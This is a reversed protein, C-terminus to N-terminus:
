ILTTAEFVLIENEGKETMAPILDPSLIAMRNERDLHLFSPYADLLLKALELTFGNQICVILQWDDSGYKVRHYFNEEIFGLDNLVEVYKMLYFDIYNQEEKIKAVALTALESATKHVPTIWLKRWGEDFTEDGWRHGVFVQSNNHQRFYAIQRSVTERLSMGQARWSLFMSYFSRAKANEVLRVLNSATDEDLPMDVLFIDVIAEILESSNDIQANEAARASLRQDIVSENDFLDYETAGHELLSTGVETQLRRMNKLEEAAPIGPELNGLRELLETRRAIDKSGELLANNPEDSADVQVDTVREVFNKLNFDGRPYGGKFVYIRPQLLNLRPDSPAFVESFRAIRGALNRFQSASLHRRGKRPDLIFLTDAPTNVGELLTSTSVMFRPETGPRGFIHEVYLRVAEPMGGHHFVVGKELTNVLEYDPHVLDEIAKRVNNIIENSVAPLASALDSALSEADRPRNLYVLNKQRALQVVASTDSDSIDTRVEFGTKLFQDHLYLRGSSLESYYYREVKVYEQIKTSTLQRQTGIPQLDEPQAMFPTFLLVRTNPNRHLATLLVETAREARNDNDLLNHAEDILIQHFALDPQERFLRFLREQTMVAIFNQNPRYLEPHTIIRLQADRIRADKILASQTQAILSKTPVVIATSHDKARNIQERMIESKGYSTPAVVVSFDAQDAFQRLRLQGKTRVTQTEDADFVFNARNAAMIDAALPTLFDVSDLREIASLVPAYDKSAAVKYLPEVDGTTEAYQLVIRYALKNLEIDSSRLFIIARSILFRLESFSLEESIMLKEYLDLFTSNQLNRKRRIQSLKFFDM